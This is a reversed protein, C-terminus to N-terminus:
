RYKEVMSIVYLRIEDMTPAGEVAEFDVISLYAWRSFVVGDPKDLFAHREGDGLGFKAVEQWYLVNKSEESLVANENYRIPLFIGKTGETMQSSVRSDSVYVENKGVPSPLLVTIVEGPEIDGHYVTDVEIHAIANYWLSGPSLSIVINDVKKIVGEFIVREAGAWDSFLEEETLGVLSFSAFNQPPDDIYKVTVGSSMTLDFDDGTNENNNLLPVLISVTLALCAAALVAWKLWMISSRKNVASIKPYAREILEDDVSGIARIIKTNNM